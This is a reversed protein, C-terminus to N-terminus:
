FINFAQPRCSFKVSKVTFLLIFMILIQETDLRSAYYMCVSLCKYIEFLFENCASLVFSAYLNTSASVM